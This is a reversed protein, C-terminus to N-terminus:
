QDTKEVVFNKILELDKKVSKRIQIQYIKM